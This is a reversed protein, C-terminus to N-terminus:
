YQLGDPTSSTRWYHNLLSQKGKEKVKSILLTFLPGQFSAKITITRSSDQQQQNEDNVGPQKASAKGFEGLRVSMAM